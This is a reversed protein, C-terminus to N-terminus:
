GSAYMALRLVEKTIWHILLQKPVFATTKLDYALIHLFPTNYCLLHLTISFSLNPLLIWEERKAGALPISLSLKVKRVYM